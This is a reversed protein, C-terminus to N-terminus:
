KKNDEAPTDLLTDNTGSSSRNVRKPRFGLVTESPKLDRVKTHIKENFNDASVAYRVPSTKHDVVYGSPKHEVRKTM